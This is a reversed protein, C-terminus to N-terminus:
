SKKGRNSLHRIRGNEDRLSRNTREILVVSLFVHARCLILSYFDKKLVDSTVKGGDLHNGAKFLM